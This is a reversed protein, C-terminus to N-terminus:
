GGHPPSAEGPQTRPAPRDGALRYQPRRAKANNSPSASTPLTIENMGQTVARLILRVLTENRLALKLGCIPCQYTLRQAPDLMVGRFQSSSTAAGIAEGSSMIRDWPDLAFGVSRDDVPGLDTSGGTRERAPALRDANLAVLWTSLVALTLYGLGRGCTCRVGIAPLDRLPQAVEIVNPHRFAAGDADRQMLSLTTPDIATSGPDDLFALVRRASTRHTGTVNPRQRKHKAAQPRQPVDGYHCFM